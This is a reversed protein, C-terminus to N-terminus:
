SKAGKEPANLYNITFRAGWDDLNDNAWDTADQESPFPGYMVETDPYCVLACPWPEPSVFIRSTGSMALPEPGVEPPKNWLVWEGAAINWCMTVAPDDGGDFLIIAVRGFYGPGGSIYNNEFFVRIFGGVEDPELRMEKAYGFLVAATDDPEGRHAQRHRTLEDPEGDLPNKKTLSNVSVLGAFEGSEAFHVHCMGMTGAPPCGHLNKVTLQEGQKPNGVPPDLQDMMVPDYFYTSNARVKM